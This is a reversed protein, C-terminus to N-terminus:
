AAVPLSSLSPTANPYVARLPPITIGSVADYRVYNAKGASAETPDGEIAIDKANVNFSLFQGFLRRMGYLIGIPTNIRTTNGAGGLFLSGESGKGSGMDPVPMLMQMIGGLAMMGGSMIVMGQSIGVSGLLGAGGAPGFLLPAAVIALAVIAIGIILQMLGNRGGSGGTRPYLHIEEMDTEGYLAIESNVGRITVPWPGGELEPFQTLFGIAEAVSNADVEIPLSYRDKLHGHLIIKKM